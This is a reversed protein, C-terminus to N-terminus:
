YGFNRSDSASNWCVPPPAYVYGYVPAAYTDAPAVYAYSPEYAYVYGPGYYYQGYASSAVAAVALAGALTAATPYKILRM